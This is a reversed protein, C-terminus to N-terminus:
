EITGLDSNFSCGNYDSIKSDYKLTDIIYSSTIEADLNFLRNYKLKSALIENVLEADNSSNNSLLNDVQTKTYVDSSNAKNDLLTDTQTKTYYDTLSINAILDDIEDKTYDESLKEYLTTSLLGSSLTSADKILAVWASGDYRYIMNDNIVPVVWGSKPSPYFSSLNSFDTVPDKWCLNGFKDDIEKKTYSGSSTSILSDVETKTYVDSSNAKNDLLTDTETKTYIDNSSVKSDIEDALEKSLNFKQIQGNM